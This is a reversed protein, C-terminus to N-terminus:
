VGIWFCLRSYVHTRAGIEQADFLTDAQRIAHQQGFRDSSSNSTDLSKLPGLVHQIVTAKVPTIIYTSNRVDRKKQRSCLVISHM